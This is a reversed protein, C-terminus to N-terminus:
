PEYLDVSRNKAPMIAHHLARVRCPASKRTRVSRESTRYVISSLIQQRCGRIHAYAHQSINVAMVPISRRPAKPTLKIGDEQDVSKEHGRKHKLALTPEPRSAHRLSMVRSTIQTAQHNERRSITGEHLHPPFVESMSKQSSSLLHYVGHIEHRSQTSLEELRRPVNCQAFLYLCTSHDGVQDGLRSGTAVGGEVQSM